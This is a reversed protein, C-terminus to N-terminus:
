GSAAIRQLDARTTAYTANFALVDKDPEIGHADCHAKYLDPWWNRHTTLGDKRWQDWDSVVKTWCASGYEAAKATDDNFQSVYWDRGIRAHLVEDAWDYDQFLKSLPDGSETGVEWEYRKGTKTMLGQEIYWLVAHREKPTLQENLGKSWTFNIMVHKPWEISQSVFGVEGMMAHRAEDWLQRTMDRYFDWPKDPMEVLISAMMEPVDIERIRKYYMMLTKAQAPFEPNYLFEEAHVGMNYPDPFREDRRPTSDYQFPQSSYLPVIPELHCPLAGDLGGAAALCQDLLGLWSELRSSATVPLCPIARAGWTIMDEIELLAHRLLRCTPNDALHNTEAIHREMGEKLAPLAKQYIGACVELATPAAQIEDFFMKLYDDPVKELGLPPHRMEAVRDRVVTIHEACLYAHYSWAMKLEYVPEATLRALFTRWLRQLAYHYRKLRDVVEQVSLGPTMMERLTGLGAVEPLGHLSRYSFTSSPDSSM